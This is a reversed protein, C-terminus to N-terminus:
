IGPNKGMKIEDMNSVENKNSDVNMLLLNWLEQRTMKDIGPFKSLDPRRFVSVFDQGFANLALGNQVHPQGVGAALFIGLWISTQM